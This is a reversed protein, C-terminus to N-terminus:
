WKLLEPMLTRNPLLFLKFKSRHKKQLMKPPTKKLLVMTRRNKVAAKEDTKKEPAKTEGCAALSLLMTLALLLSFMKKLANQQKM